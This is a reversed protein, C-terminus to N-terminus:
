TKFRRMAALGVTRTRRKLVQGRNCVGHSLRIVLPDYVLPALEGAVDTYTRNLKELEITEAAGVLPLALGFAVALATPRMTM